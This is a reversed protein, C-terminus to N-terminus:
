VQKFDDILCVISWDICFALFYYDSDAFIVQEFIKKLDSPFILHDPVTSVRLQKLFNFLDALDETAPFVANFCFLFGELFYSLNKCVTGFSVFVNGENWDNDTDFENANFNWEDDNWNVNFAVSTHWAM